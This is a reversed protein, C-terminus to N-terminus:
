SAARAGLDLYRAVVDGVEIRSPCISEAISSAVFRPRVAVASVAM